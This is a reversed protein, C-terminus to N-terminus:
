AGMMLAGVLLGIELRVWELRIRALNVRGFTHALAATM